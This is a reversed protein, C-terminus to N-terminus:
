RFPINDDDGDLPPRDPRPESNKAGRPEYPKDEFLGIMLDDNWRLVTGPSLVISFGGNDKQWAVGVKAYPRADDNRVKVCLNHTPKRGSM